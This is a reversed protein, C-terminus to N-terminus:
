KIYLYESDPESGDGSRPSFLTRHVFSERAPRRPEDEYRSRARTDARQRRAELAPEILGKRVSAGLRTLLGGRLEMADAPESAEPRVPAPSDRLSGMEARERAWFDQTERAPRMALLGEGPTQLSDIHAQLMAAKDPSYLAARKLDAVAGSTDGLAQRAMGRNAYAMGFDPKLLLVRDLDKTAASYDGSAFLAASRQYLAGVSDANRALFRSLDNIARDAQGLKRYCRGRYYRAHSLGPAIALVRTYDQAARSYEGLKELVAGRAILAMAPRDLLHIARGLNMLAEPLSSQSSRISGLGLYALAYDPDLRVARQFDAAAGGREDMVFRAMGRAAFSEASDPRLELGAAADRRAGRTDNKTWRVISRFARATKSGAGGKMAETFLHDAAEIRGEHYAQVGRQMLQVSARGPRAAGAPWALTLCVCLIPSMRRM